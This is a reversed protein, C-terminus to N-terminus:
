LFSISIDDKRLNYIKLPNHQNVYNERTRVM